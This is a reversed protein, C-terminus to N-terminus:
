LNNVSSLGRKLNEKYIEFNVSLTKLLIQIFIKKKEGLQNFITENLNIEKNQLMLFNQLNQYLAEVSINNKPEINLNYFNDSDMKNEKM